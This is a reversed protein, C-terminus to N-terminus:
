TFTLMDPVATDNICKVDKKMGKLILALGGLSGWADGDMRIHNILLIRNSKKILKGLKEIQKEM